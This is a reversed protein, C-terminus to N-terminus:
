VFPLPWVCALVSVFFVHLCAWVLSVIGQEDCAQIVASLLKWTGAPVVAHGLLPTTEVALLAVYGVVLVM